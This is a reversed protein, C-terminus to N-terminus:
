QGVAAPNFRGDLAALAPLWARVRALDFPPTGQLYHNGAVAGDMTWSILLLRCAGEAVPIKGLDVNENAAVAYTGALLTEESEADWVRYIGAADRRSDNGAVVRLQGEEPEDIMLCVPQQVRRLYHFALKQGYYYDVVADSFQPWGDIMNWWIVGTRDWKKLRTMEVFFKKAEAQVLQSALAFEELTEPIAGFLTGIQAAMLRIRYAYQGDAGTPETAHVIWQPNDQWPWLHDADLFRRLSSVNPCGHYGIESVFAAQSSLYYDSKYYDRPGWLHREALLHVDRAAVAEPGIYPSSPIFVRFPDAEALVGPLIERTLRNANPDLGVSFANEDCENDGCWVVLSPHYRLKRVVAEAERRIAELFEPAQPYLGCGMCFDQWVMLGRRDCADFFAHDEYVGGGWCRVMNCGAEIFLALHGAIRDADRSHFVDAPVWNAGKVMIPVGNLRFLFEGRRGDVPDTRVLEVVRLGAHSTHTAVVTEGCLLEVTLTYLNAEGYGLPWWLQVDEVPVRLMGAVSHIRRAYTFRSEGCVGTVRLTADQLLAPATKLEYYIGVLAKPADLALISATIERIEVSEHVVLEVGRWLGASLARPMIDWGYSHPAKRIWLSEINMQLWSQAQRPSYPKEMAALLPSRLRVTLTNTGGAVLRGTVDFRHEILMNESEGLWEGNLWYTALCDVGHFVLEVDRDDVAPTVFERQYWWEHSEYQRVLHINDGAYLEEPLVGHRVLDLEVNGPVTAPIAQAADLDAPNRVPSTSEPYGWLRWAGNLTITHM